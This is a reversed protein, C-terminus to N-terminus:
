ADGGIRRTLAAINANLTALQQQAIEVLAVRVGRGEECVALRLLRQEHLMATEALSLRQRECDSVLWYACEQRSCRSRQDADAAVRPTSRRRNV